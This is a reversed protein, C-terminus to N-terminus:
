VNFKLSKKKDTRGIRFINNKSPFFAIERFFDM